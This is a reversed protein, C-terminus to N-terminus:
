QLTLQVCKMLFFFCSDHFKLSITQSVVKTVVSLINKILGDEQQIITESNSLQGNREGDKLKRKKIKQNTRNKVKNVAENKTLSGNTKSPNQEIHSSNTAKDATQPLLKRIREQRSKERDVVEVYRSFDDENYIEFDSVTTTSIFKRHRKRRDARMRKLRSLKEQQSLQTGKVEETVENKVRVKNTKDDTQDDSMLDDIYM